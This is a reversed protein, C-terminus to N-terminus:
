EDDSFAEDLKYSCYSCYDSYELDMIDCKCRKCRVIHENGNCDLEYVKNENVCYNDGDADGLCLEGCRSCYADFMAHAGCLHCEGDRCFDEDEQMNKEAADLANSVDNPIDIPIERLADALNKKLIVSYESGVRNKFENELIHNINLSQSGPEAFDGDRSVIILNHKDGQTCCHICWEWNIADGISFDDKKRPPLNKYFRKIAALFVADNIEESSFISNFATDLQFMPMIKNYANDHQTPKELIDQLQKKANKLLTDLVEAKRRLDGAIETRDLITPLRVLDKIKIPLHDICHKLEKSRNQSFENKVQESLILQQANEQLKGFVDLSLDFQPIRYFDLLISTDIFLLTNGM